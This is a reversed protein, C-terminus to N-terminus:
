KLARKQALAYGLHLSDHALTCTIVEEITAMHLGYTHTAYGQITSLKGEQYDRELQDISEQLYNKLFALHTEDADVQHITGKKYRDFYPIETNEPWIGTRIYSLAVTSVGIHGLNWVISNQFGEPVTNLQELSLSEVLELFLARNRRIYQFITEM